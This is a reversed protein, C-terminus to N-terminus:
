AVHKNRSSTSTPKVCPALTQRASWCRIAMRIAQFLLIVVAVAVAPAVQTGLWLLDILVVVPVCISLIMPRLLLPRCLSALTLPTAALLCAAETITELSASMARAYVPWILVPLLILVGAQVSISSPALLLMPVVWRAWRRLPHRGAARRQWESLQAVGAFSAAPRTGALRSPAVDLVAEDPSAPWQALGTGVAVGLCCGAVNLAVQDAIATSMLLGAIIAPWLAVSLVGAGAVVAQQLMLKQSPLPWAQMWGHRGAAADRRCRRRSWMATWAGFGTALWWRLAAPLSGLRHEAAALLLWAFLVLAAALLFALSIRWARSAAHFRNIRSLLAVAIWPNRRVLTHM